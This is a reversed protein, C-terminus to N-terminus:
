KSFFKHAYASEKVMIKGGSRLMAWLQKITLSCNLLDGGGPLRRQHQRHYDIEVVAGEQPKRHLVMLYFLNAFVTM